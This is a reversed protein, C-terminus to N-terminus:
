REKVYKSFVRLYPTDFQVCTIDALPAGVEQEAWQGLADFELIWATDGEVETVAGLFFGDEDDPDDRECEVILPEDLEAFHALAAGLSDLPIGRPCGVQDLLGEKDMIKQFFADAEDCRVAEIDRPRLLAFGDFAFDRLQQDGFLVTYEVLLQRRQQGLLADAEAVPM